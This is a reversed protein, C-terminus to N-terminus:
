SEAESLGTAYDIRIGPQVNHVFICFCVSEGSDEASYAELLVGRCVLEDGIYVPTSRYLVPSGTRHIYSITQYEYPRMGEINMYRTGTILNRPNANEGTLGFAILHCRNYLYGDEILGDYRANHYGSPHINQIPEREESPLFETSIMAFAGTCRGLSDLEGYEEFPERQLDEPTFFPMNGNIETVPSNEYAPIEEFSGPHDSLTHDPMRYAAYVCALIVAAAALTRLISRMAKVASDKYIIRILLAALVLFGAIYLLIVLHKSANDLITM